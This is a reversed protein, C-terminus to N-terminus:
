PNRRESGNRFSPLTRLFATRLTLGDSDREGERYGQSGELYRGNHNSGSNSPLLHRGNPVRPLLELGRYHRGRKWPWRESSDPLLESVMRHRSRLLIRNSNIDMRDLPGDMGHEQGRLNPLYGSNRNQEEKRLRVRRHYSPSVLRLPLNAM